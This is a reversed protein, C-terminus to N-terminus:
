RTPPRSSRRPTAGTAERGLQVMAAWTAALLGGSRSGEIGPSCYKGGTWDTCSSTSATACRRTASCRAGVHGQLAYGYKHTDASISTVGPVRFDFVRSTTASSRASRSSSGASAATSTCASATSSRSSAVARRDPRDHRLRLQVGLRHARDDPRRHPEAVATSTSRADDDPRDPATACRSASCTAPRTSRRTAGDRAQRLQAATVGRTAAAHERYALVAHLISGTGGTTVLGAPETDTVADAHLLDLTM